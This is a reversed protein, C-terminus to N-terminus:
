TGCASCGNGGNRSPVGPVEGNSGYNTIVGKVVLDGEISSSSSTTSTPHQIGSAMLFLVTTPRATSYAFSPLILKIIVLSACVILRSQAVRSLRFRRREDCRLSVASAHKQDLPCQNM